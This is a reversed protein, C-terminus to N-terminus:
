GPGEIYSPSILAVVGGKGRVVVWVQYTLNSYVLIHRGAGNTQFIETM